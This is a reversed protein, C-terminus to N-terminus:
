LRDGARFERMSVGFRNKFRHSLSNANRFGCEAALIAIPRHTSILLRKLKDMRVSELTERITEGTAARYRLEALTQSVKLHEVVDKVRIPM